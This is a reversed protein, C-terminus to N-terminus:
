CRHYQYNGPPAQLAADRQLRLQELELREARDRRLNELEIRDKEEM